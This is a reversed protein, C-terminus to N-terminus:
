LLDVVRVDGINPQMPDAYYRIITRIDDGSISTAMEAGFRQYVHDICIKRLEYAGKVGTFGIDRMAKNVKAFTRRDCSVHENRLREWLTPHIPWKVMRGSSYKTKHPTYNLFMRGNSEVFNERGLRLIDGNRMAFELMMTAAFWVDGPPLAEYWMKVKLLRDAPPRVYRPVMRRGGISPFEPVKWGREDYYPRMWRAFLQRLQNLYSMATLPRLGSELMDALYRHVLPPKIISVLPFDEEFSVREYGLKERRENLYRVFRKVGCITNNVTSMGPRGCKLREIAAATVYAKIMRNLTPTTM